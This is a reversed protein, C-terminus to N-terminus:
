LNELTCNRLLGPFLCQKIVDVFGNLRLEESVATFPIQHSL